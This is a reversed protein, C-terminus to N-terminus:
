KKGDVESEVTYLLKMGCSEDVEMPPIVTPACIKREGNTSAPPAALAQRIEERSSPELRKVSRDWRDEGRTKASKLLRQLDKDQLAAQFMRGEMSNVHRGMQQLLWFFVHSNFIANSLLVFVDKVVWGMTSTSVKGLDCLTILDAFATNLEREVQNEQVCLQRHRDLVFEKCKYIHHLSEELTIVVSACQWIQPVNPLNQSVAEAQLQKAFKYSSCEIKNEHPVQTFPLYLPTESANAREM